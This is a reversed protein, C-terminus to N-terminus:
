LLLLIFVIGPQLGQHIYQLLHVSFVFHCIVFYMTIIYLNNSQYFVTFPLDIISYFLYLNSTEFSFFSTVFYFFYFFAQLCFLHLVSLPHASM